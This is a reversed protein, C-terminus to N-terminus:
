KNLETETDLLDLIVTLDQACKEIHRQHWCEHPYPPKVICYGHYSLDRIKNMLVPWNMDGELISVFSHISQRYDSMHIAIIRDSLMDIYHEPYGTVLAHGTNFYANVYPHDVDDLFGAFERPSALFKNATNELGIMVGASAAEDGLKTISAVANEYAIDYSLDVTILGPSFKVIPVEMEAAFEIMRRGIEVGSKRLRSENSTLPYDHFLETSLSSIELDLQGVMDALINAEKLTTRPTLIGKKECFNIEIGSFGMKKTMELFNEIEWNPCFVVDSLAKKM